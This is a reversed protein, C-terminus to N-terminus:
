ITTQETECCRSIAKHIDNKELYRQSHRIIKIYMYKRISNRILGNTNKGVKVQLTVFRKEEANCICQPTLSRPLGHKRELGHWETDFVFM